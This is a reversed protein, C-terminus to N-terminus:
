SITFMQKVARKKGTGAKYILINDDDYINWGKEDCIDKAETYLNEIQDEYMERVEPFRFWKSINFGAGEYVSEHLFDDEDLNAAITGRRRGVAYKNKAQCGYHYAEHAFFVHKLCEQALIVSFYPNPPDAADEVSSQNLIIDSQKHQESAYTYREANMDIAETPANARAWLKEQMLMKAYLLFAPAYQYSTAVSIWDAALLWRHVATHPFIANHFISEEPKLEPRKVLGLFSSVRYMVSENSASPFSDFPTPKVHDPPEDEIYKWGSKAYFEALEYAAVPHSSAAAKTVHYLWASTPIHSGDADYWKIYTSAHYHSIPDDQECGIDMAQRCQKWEDKGQRDIRERHLMMLDIWPTSLGLADSREVSDDGKVGSAQKHAHAVAAAMAGTWMKIAMEENGLARAVKGECVMARFNVKKSAIQSLHQRAHQIEPADLIAPKKRATLVVQAMIRITAEEVGARSLSLLMRKGIYSEKMMILGHPITWSDKDNLGHEDMLNRMQRPDVRAGGVSRGSLQKFDSIFAM